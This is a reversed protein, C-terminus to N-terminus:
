WASGVARTAFSTQARATLNPMSAKLIIQKVPGCGGPRAGSTVTPVKGLAVEQRRIGIQRANHPGAHATEKTRNRVIVGKGGAFPQYDGSQPRRVGSLLSAACRGSGRASVACSGLQRPFTRNGRTM